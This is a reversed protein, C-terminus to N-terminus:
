INLELIKLLYISDNSPFHMIIDMTETYNNPLFGSYGNIIKKWHYTSYYMYKSDMWLDSPIEVIAFDGTENALWKYVEPIERDVSMTGGFVPIYISESIILLVFIFSVFVKKVKPMSGILRNLGYAALVSLSLM